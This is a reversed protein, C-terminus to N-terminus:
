TYSMIQLKIPHLQTCGRAWYSHELWQGDFTVPSVPFIFNLYTLDSESLTMDDLNLKCIVGEAHYMKM